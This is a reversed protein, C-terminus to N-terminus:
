GLRPEYQRAKHMALEAQEPEGEQQALYALLAYLYGNSSYEHLWHQVQKRLKLVSRGLPIQRIYPLLQPLEALKLHSLLLKEAAENQGSQAMAWARGINAATSKREKAPLNQWYDATEDFHQQQSLQSIAAPYINFRQLQWKDKDFWHQKLALPVMQLLQQWQGAQQLAFLYLQGLGKDDTDASIKDALLACAQAAQGQQMLLDAQVFLASSSNAPLAEIFSNAQGVNGAYFAAYAALLRKESHMFDDTCAKALHQSALLWQQKAYAQLGLEYSQQAKRQRRWRLFNFSVHQLRLLKRLLVSILWLTVAAALLMVVIGLVTMELVKGALVIKIYGPNNILAPGLLMAAVLLVILLLWQIM